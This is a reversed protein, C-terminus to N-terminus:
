WNNIEHKIGIGEWLIMFFGDFYVSRKNPVIIKCVGKIGDSHLQQSYHYVKEFHLHYINYNDSKHNSEDWQNWYKNTEIPNGHDFINGACFYFIFVSSAGNPM